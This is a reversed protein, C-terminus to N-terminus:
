ELWSNTIRRATKGHNACAKPTCIAFRVVHASLRSHRKTFSKSKLYGPVLDYCTLGLDHM